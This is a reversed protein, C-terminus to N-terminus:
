CPWGRVNWTHVVPRAAVSCLHRSKLDLDRLALGDMHSASVDVESPVRDSIGEGGAKLAAEKRVWARLWWSPKATPDLRAFTEFEGDTLTAFALETLDTDEAATEPEVDVGVPSSSSVALVALDDCYSLSLQFGRLTPSAGYPTSLAVAEPPTDTYGSLVKRIATHAACFRRRRAGRLHNMRNLEAPSLCNGLSNVGTELPIVWLHAERNTPPNMEPPLAQVHCDYMPEPWINLLLRFAM